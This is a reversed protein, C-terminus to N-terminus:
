RALSGYLLFSLLLQLYSLALILPDAPFTMHPLFFETLWGLSPASSFFNLVPGYVSYFYLAFPSIMIIIEVVILIYAVTSALLFLRPSKEELM